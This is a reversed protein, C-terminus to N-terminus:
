LYMVQSGVQCMGERRGWPGFRSDRFGAVPSTKMRRPRPTNRSWPAKEADSAGQRFSVSGPKQNGQPEKRRLAHSTRLLDVNM